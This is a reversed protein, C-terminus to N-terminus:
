SLQAGCDRCEGRQVDSPVGGSGTMGEDCHAMAGGCVPCRVTEHMSLRKWSGTILDDLTLAGAGPVGSGVPCVRPTRDASRPRERGVLGPLHQRRRHRQLPAVSM